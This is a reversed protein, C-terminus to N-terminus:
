LGVPTMASLVSDNMAQGPQALLLQRKTGGGLEQMVPGDTQVAVAALEGVSMAQLSETVDMELTGDTDLKFRLYPVPSYVFPTSKFGSWFSFIPIDRQSPALTLNKWSTLNHFDVTETRLQLQLIGRPVTDITLLKKFFLFQEDAFVFNSLSRPGNAMDALLDSPFITSILLRMEEVGFGIALDSAQDRMAGSARDSTLRKLAPFTIQQLTRSVIPAIDTRNSFCNSTGGLGLLFVRSLWLGRQLGRQYLDQILKDGILELQQNKSSDARVILQQISPERTLTETENVIWGLYLRQGEDITTILRQLDKRCRTEVQAQHEASSRELTILALCLAPVLILFFVVAMQGLLSLAPAERKRLPLVVFSIGLCLWIFTSLPVIVRWWTAPEPADPITRSLIYPEPSQLMLEGAVTHSRTSRDAPPSAPLHSASASQTLSDSPFLLRSGRDSLLRQLAPKYSREDLDEPSLFFLLGGRLERQAVISREAESEPLSDPWSFRHAGSASYLPYWCFYRREDGVVSEVFVGLSEQWLRKPYGFGSHDLYRSLHHHLFGDFVNRAYGKLCAGIDRVVQESFGPVDGAIWFLDHSLREPSFVCMFYPIWWPHLTNAIVRNIHNALNQYRELRPDGRFVACASHPFLKLFLPQIAQRFATVSEDSLQDRTISAQLDRSWSRLLTAALAKPETLKSVLSVEEQVTRMTKRLPVAERTALLSLIPPLLLLVPFALLLGAIM